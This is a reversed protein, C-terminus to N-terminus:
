VPTRIDRPDTERAVIAALAARSHVGLKDYIRALHSGITKESLFLAAAVERNTDGSAVRGAVERERASLGNFGTGGTPAAVRRRVRHGLRRLTRVAADRERAAGAASLVSEAALLEGKAAEREGAAALAAGATARARASLVPNGARDFQAVADRAAVVAAEAEGRALMVRATECRVAAVQQPLSTAEARQGARVTVDDAAALDGLALHAEALVTWGHAGVLDLLVRTPENDLAALQTHAGAADGGALRAAALQIQSMGVFFPEATRQACAVAERASSLARDVDGTWYAATSVAELAWMALRDHGAAAASEAGAEAARLAEALRGTMLLVNSEVRLLTPVIFSQGTERAVRLGRRVHTRAAEFRELRCAALAIQTSLMLNQGLVDDPLAALENEAEALEARAEDIRALYLDALSALVGSLIIVPTAGGTGGSSVAGTLQRMQSFEGRWFHDHALAVQLAVATAADPPPTSSLAEKLMAQSEFRRVSHQKVDAIRVMLNTRQGVDRRPVLVLADELAELADDYAGAAAFAAASESLLELHREREAGQGLLRLAARLWRGATLPARPAAIRAAHVLLAIADEDGARASREVHHAYAVAPAQDAALAAAARAHAGLRWGSPMGEYVVTRVIPHRFRFRRPAESPRIVDAEVLEDLVGLALSPPRDAIAAVLEPEFSEGAVAAADLALRAEASLQVLEERMAAAVIAPPSWGGSPQDSEDVPALAGPQPTRALQELYFPNGGSERFLRAQTAGDLDGALLAKAEDASLPSLRLESGFGGREAAVFAAALRAPPRRFAFAGLLRGRFRRVLHGILEVSAADAWHVDDLVLAVPQRKVLRELLSRIAYRTRYRDSDLGRPMAGDAYPSLSPFVSALEALADDDLSRLVHPELGGLYDNLADVIVGFPVDREFEAARGDLVLWGRQEARIGLESLLRTKGIGPEGVLQVFWPEGLGVRELGRDLEAVEGVRGVLTGSRQRARITM